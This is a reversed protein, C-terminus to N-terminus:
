HSHASQIVAMKINMEGSIRETNSVFTKGNNRRLDGTTAYFSVRM